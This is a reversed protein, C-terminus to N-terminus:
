RTVEPNGQDSTSVENLEAQERYARPAMGFRKKFAHNFNSVNPFGVNAAIVAIREHGAELMAAAAALRRERVYDRITTKVHAKFLHELRSPGLGVRSALEPVRVEDRWESGLLEVVQRVRRDM